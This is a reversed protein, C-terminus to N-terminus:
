ADKPPKRKHQRREDRQEYPVTLYEYPLTPNFTLVAIAVSSYSYIFFDCKSLLLADVLVEKGLLAADRESGGKTTHVPAGDQSRHANCYILAGRLKKKALDLLSEDDSAIFFQVEEDFTNAIREAAGLLLLSLKQNRALDKEKREKIEANKIEQGRKGGAKDTGRLHIGITKKGKMNKEYFTDVEESIGPKVEIYRDLIEKVVFRYTQDFYSRNSQFIHSITVGDAVGLCSHLANGREYTLNSVPYFYYEWANSGDMKAYCCGENWYVVPVKHNKEAWIINNLVGLFSSFFGEGPTPGIVFKEEAFLGAVVVLFLLVKRM